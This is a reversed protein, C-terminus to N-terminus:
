HEKECFAEQSFMPKSNEMMGENFISKQWDGLYITFYTTNNSPCSKLIIYYMQVYAKKVKNKSLNEVKVNSM